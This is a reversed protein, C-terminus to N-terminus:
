VQPFLQFTWLDAPHPVLVQLSFGSLLAAFPVGLVFNMEFAVFLHDAPIGVM